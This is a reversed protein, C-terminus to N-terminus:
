YCRVFLPNWHSDSMICIDEKFINMLAYLNEFESYNKFLSFIKQFWLYFCVNEHEEFRLSPFM